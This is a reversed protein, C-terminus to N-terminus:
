TLNAGNHQLYEVPSGVLQLASLRAEGFVHAHAAISILLWCHTFALTRNSAVPRKSTSVV